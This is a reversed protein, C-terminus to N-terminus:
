RLVVVRRLLVAAGVVVLPLVLLAPRLGVLDALQGVVLPGLLVATSGAVVCRGSVEAPRDPAAAVALSLALPFLGAIGLGLLVLGALAPVVDTSAAHVALGAAVVVLSAAVLRAPDFRRVLVGAAVRGTLMAAFLFTTGTVASARSLDVEERLYTAGWYAVSWELVVGTFVLGVGARAAAPLRGGGGAAHESLAVTAPVPTRRVVAAVVLGTLALLLVGWRWSGLAAATAGVVLPATTTGVSAVVNSEAFAVARQEGHHDALASQVAVLVLTGLLGALGAAALTAAPTRGASLAAAGAAIGALGLLLVARRGIWRDLRPALLGALIGLGAFASVHLSAVTYGYGLEDRLAPTVLGPVVQLAGFVGLAAYLVLTTRDRTFAHATLVPPPRSTVAVM